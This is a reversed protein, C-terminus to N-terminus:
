WFYFCELRRYRELTTWFLERPTCFLLAVLLPVPLPQLKSSFGPGNSGSRLAVCCRWSRKLRISFRKRHGHRGLSRHCGRHFGFHNRDAFHRASYQCRFVEFHRGALHARGDYRDAMRALSNVNTRALREQVVKNELVQKKQM